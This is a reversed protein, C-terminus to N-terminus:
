VLLLEISLELEREPPLGLLDKPFVDSFERIIPREEIISEIADRCVMNALYGACGKSLLQFSM